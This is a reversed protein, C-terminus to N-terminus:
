NALQLSYGLNTAGIVADDAFSVCVVYQGAAATYSISESGTPGNSSALVQTLAQNILHLDLDLSTNSATLALHLTTTSSVQILYLDECFDSTTSNTITISGTAGRESTDDTPSILGRITLRGYPIVQANSVIADLETSREQVICVGESCSAVTACTGCSQGCVPDPGCVRTGCTPTCTAGGVGAAGGAGAAGGM